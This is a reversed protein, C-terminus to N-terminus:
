LRNEEIWDMAHSIVDISSATDTALEEPRTFPVEVGYGRADEQIEPDDTSIILRTCYKSRLASIAKFGVLSIGAVKRLNKGPVAKSGGRAIILFIVNM